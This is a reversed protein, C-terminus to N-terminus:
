QIPPLPKTAISRADRESLGLARLLMMALDSAHGATRGRELIAHMATRLAGVVLDSASNLDSFDFRGSQLGAILDPKPYSLLDGPVTHAASFDYVLWGWIHDEETRELVLRAQTALREAPDDLSQIARQIQEFPELGVHAWVDNLLEELTSYYYYFTGRAVGAASIVDDIRAKHEGTEAVVRAAAAILKERTRRRRDAAVEQRWSGGDGNKKM